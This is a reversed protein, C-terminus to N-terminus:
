SSAANLAPPKRTTGGATARRLVIAIPQDMQVAGGKCAFMVGGGVQPSWWVRPRFDPVVAALAHGCVEDWKEPSLKLLHRLKHKLDTSREALEVLRRFQGVKDVRTLDDPLTPDLSLNEEAAAARLDLLKDVTAKGVHVLKSAHDAVSPIDSKIAHKVRKTAVVFSESVVYTVRPVHAGTARDVAWVLLRFTPAKGALLAESSTTCNVSGSSHEARQPSKRINATSVAAM